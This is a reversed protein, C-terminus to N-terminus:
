GSRIAPMTSSRPPCSSIWPVPVFTWITAGTGGHLAYVTNDSVGNRTGVFVADATVGGTFTAGKIAQLWVAAGGQLQTGLSASQWVQTGTDTRVGYARGDQSTVYAIDLGTSSFGAPIIPPRSQIPGGTTFPTFSQTGNASNMGYLRGTNSGSNVVGSPTLGPPTLTTAGMTYNWIYVQTVGDPPTANIKPYTPDAGSTTSASYNVASDRAFIRYYCTTGNPCGTDTFTTASTTNNSIVTGDGLPNGAVYATGDIPNTSANSTFDSGAKRVILTGNYDAGPTPLTWNLVVQGSSASATLGTVQRLYTVTLSPRNSPTGNEKMGFTHINAAGANELSDKILTGYNVATGLVYAQVDAKINWTVTGTTPVNVVSATATANFDGGATTWPTACNTPNRNNWTAGTTVCAAGTQNGEAWVATIRHANYTRVADTGAATQVLALNATKIAADSPITSVNFQVLVRRRATSRANVSNTTSAGYNNTAANAQLRTDATSSTFTGTTAAEVPPIGLALCLLAVVGQPVMSRRRGM